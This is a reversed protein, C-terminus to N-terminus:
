SNAINDMQYYFFFFDIDRYLTQAQSMYFMRLSYFCLNKQWHSSLYQSNSHLTRVQGLYELFFFLFFSFSRSINGPGYGVFRLQLLM